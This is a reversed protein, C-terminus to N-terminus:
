LHIITTCVTSERGWGGMVKELSICVYVLKCYLLLLSSFPFVKETLFVVQWFFGAECLTTYNTFCYLINSCSLAVFFYSYKRIKTRLKDKSESKNTVFFTDSYYTQKNCLKSLDESVCYATWLLSFPTRHIVVYIQSQLSYAEVPEFNLNYKQEWPPTTFGWMIRSIHLSCSRKPACPACSRGSGLTNDAFAVTYKLNKM